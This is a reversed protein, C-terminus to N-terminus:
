YDPNYIYKSKLNFLIGYGFIAGSVYFYLVEINFWAHYILFWYDTSFVKSHDGTAYLRYQWQETNLAWLDWCFAFIVVAFTFKLFHIIDFLKLNVLIFVVGILMRIVTYKGFLGSLLITFITFMALMGLVFLNTKQFLGRYYNKQIKDYTAYFGISGVVPFIIDEIPITFIRWGIIAADSFVWAPMVDASNFVAFEVWAYVSCVATFSWLVNFNIGQKVNTYFICLCILIMITWFYM